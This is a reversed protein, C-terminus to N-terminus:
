PGECCYGVGVITRGLFDEDGYLCSDYYCTCEYYEESKLQDLSDPFSFMAIAFLSVEFILLRLDCRVDVGEVWGV